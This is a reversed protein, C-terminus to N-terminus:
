AGQRVRKLWYDNPKFTVKAYWSPQTNDIARIHSDAALVAIATAVFSTESSTVVFDQEVGGPMTDPSWQIGFIKLNVKSGLSGRGSFTTHTISDQKSLATLAITGAVATPVTAPFFLDSDTLSVKASIFALDLPLLTALSTFFTNFLGQGYSEMLAASIGRAGRMMVSHARQASRYSLVYRPTVNPAFDPM